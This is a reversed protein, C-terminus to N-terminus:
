EECVWRDALDGIVPLQYRALAHHTAGLYARVSMSIATSFLIVTLLARIWSPFGLLSAFIRLALLPTTLLASQYAHFRVYDNNTEFILLSLASLPGFIYAFAALLDVRMGNRTEWQNQQVEANETVAYGGAASTNFTPIGGSQYSTEAGRSSSHVPFWPRSRSNTAPPHISVRAPDDPPPTYPAFSSAFSSM